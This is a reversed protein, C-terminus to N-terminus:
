LCNLLVLDCEDVDCRGNDHAKGSVFHDVVVVEAADLHHGTAGGRQCLFEDVCYVFSNIDFDVLGVTEALSTRHCM